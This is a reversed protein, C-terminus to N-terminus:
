FDIEQPFETMLANFNDPQEMMLFHGTGAMIEVEAQPAFDALAERDLAQMDATGAYVILAPAAVSENVWASFSSLSSGVAMAHEDSPSLMMHLLRDQVQKTTGEVFFGRFAREEIWYVDMGDLSTTEAPLARALLLTALVGTLVGYM